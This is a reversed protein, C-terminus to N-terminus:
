RPGLSFYGPPTEEISSEQQSHCEGSIEGMRDFVKTVCADDQDYEGFDGYVLCGGDNFKSVVRAFEEASDSGCRRQINLRDIETGAVNLM